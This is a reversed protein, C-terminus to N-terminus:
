LVKLRPDLADRLGDGLLNFGLVTFLIALGPFICIWPATQILNRGEALMIGWSPTPPQVGLGLFSLGAESLINGAVGLTGVVIIPALSNPLIHKLIIRADSAGMARAAEIFDEEKVSLVQGRVVRAVGTWGVIGLAIFVTFLGPREFVALIAIALLLSPFAFFTDTIRMLISDLRGGFYGALAGFLVGIVLAIIEAVVGVILSIQAGYIIRSLIDRGFKDTGLVFLNTRPARFQGEPKGEFETRIESWSSRSMPPLRVAQRYQVTMDHPSLAPALLATISLLLVIFLGFLASKSRALRRLTPFRRSAHVSKVYPTPSPEPTESPNIM